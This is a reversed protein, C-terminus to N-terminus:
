DLEQLVWENNMLAEQPQYHQKYNMKQSGQIWYGLFLYPLKLTKCWEILWLISYTGYSNAKDAPTKIAADYFTYVASIGNEVVDIMSVIKLESNSRFEIAYSKVNSQVLFDRFQNATETDKSPHRIAQYAAYLQFHEDKYELKHISVELSQHRKFARQQSRSPTFDKVPLRVPICAKCNECHPRYVFKGSRRFGLQILGSYTKANILHQPTAILSQAARNPLYGCAYLTTAYFQLKQLPPDNPLTM